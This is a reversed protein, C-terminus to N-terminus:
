APKPSSYLVSSYSGIYGLSVSGQSGLVPLPGVLVVLEVTVALDRRDLEPLLVHAGGIQFAIHTKHVIRTLFMRLSAFYGDLMQTIHDTVVGSLIEVHRVLEHLVADTAHQHFLANM